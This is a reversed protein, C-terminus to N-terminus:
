AWADGRMKRRDIRVSGMLHRVREYDFGRKMERDIMERILASETKKEAAARRKLQARQSNSLRVTVTSDVAAAHSMTLCSALCINEARGVRRRKPTGARSRM